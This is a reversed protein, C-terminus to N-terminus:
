QTDHHISASQQKIHEIIKLTPRSLGLKPPSLYQFWVQNFKDKTLIPQTKLEICLPKIYLDYHSFCHKFPTLTEVDYDINIFYKKMWNSVNSKQKIEPFTWLNQWVKKEHRKELYLTNTTHSHLVLFFTDQTPKTRKPKPAPISHTLKKKHSLCASILACEQCLPKKKLCILSGLDMLAQNYNKPSQTTILTEAYQWLIKKISAQEPWGQIAFYRTLVRKVNGDLIPYALNFGLSLIAGATSRGIGPLEILQKYRNPFKGNYLQQITQACTHLNKARTYYGLGSWLHLIHDLPANALSTITPFHHIFQNFYPIVTKVQTQQLMVESLWTAYPTNKVQWPLTKRGHKNFWNLVSTQFFSITIENLM